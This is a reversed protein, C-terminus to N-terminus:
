RSTAGGAQKGRVAATIGAVVSVPLSIFMGTWVVNGIANRWGTDSDTLPSLAFSLCVVFTIAAAVLIRRTTM